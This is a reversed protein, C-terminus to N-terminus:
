AKNAYYGMLDLLFNSDEEIKNGVVVIDAGAEYAKDIDAISKLGGGVILPLQISSKVSRIMESPVPNIAGSGADMFVCKFGLMEGAIATKVAIREQDNPIPSTQSVYAVSSNKGGDVLMYATSIAEIDMEKLLHASEIQHGILYDPNRGSLLSLFLIGDAKDSIQQHSGPFIIIPVTCNSKIISLCAELDDKSVTSGGVFIFSPNVLKVKELLDTLSREENTKDPDILIALKKESGSLKKLLKEM